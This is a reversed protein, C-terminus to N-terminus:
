IYRVYTYIVIFKSQTFNRDHCYEISFWYYVYVYGPPIGPTMEWLIAQVVHHLNITWSTQTCYFASTNFLQIILLLSLKGPHFPFYIIQTCGRNCPPGSSWSVLRWVLKRVMTIKFDNLILMSGSFWGRKRRSTCISQRGPHLRDDQKPEWRHVEMQKESAPFPPIVSWYKKERNWVLFRMRWTGPVWPGKRM